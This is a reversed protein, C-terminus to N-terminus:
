NQVHKLIRGMRWKEVCFLWAEDNQAYLCDTDNCCKVQELYERATRSGSARHEQKGKKRLKREFSKKQVTRQMKRSLSFIRHTRREDRENQYRWVPQKKQVLLLAEKSKSEELEKM